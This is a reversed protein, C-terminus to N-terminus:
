PSATELPITQEVESSDSALNSQDDWEDSAAAEVEEVTLDRLQNLVHDRKAVFGPEDTTFFPRCAEIVRSIPEVMKYDVQLTAGTYRDSIKDLCADGLQRAISELRADTGSSDPLPLSGHQFLIRQLLAETDERVSPEWYLLLPPGWLHITHLVHSRVLTSGNELRRNRLESLADFFQLHERGGTNGITDVDRATSVIMDRINRPSRENECYAVAAQLFPAAVSAPDSEIGQRLTKALAHNTGFDYGARTLLGVIRNAATPNHNVDLMKWVFAVVSKSRATQRMWQEELHSLLVLDDNEVDVADDVRSGQHRGALETNSLLVQLLEIMQHYSIKTGRNIRRWLKDYEVRLITAYEMVLLHLCKEIFKAELVVHAEESGLSAIQVLLGFYEDWAKHNISVVDEWLRELANVITFLSGREEVSADQYPDIEPAYLSRGQVRLHQLATVIMRTFDVRIKASPNKLLLNKLADVHRAVWDISIKCCMECAGSVNLLTHMMNDFDPTDKTRSIVQEVHVLAVNIVAREMGHTKSCVGGNLKVLSDLLGRVFLSHYPDYLCYKRILFENDLAIHNGLDLSLPLRKPGEVIVSSQHNQATKLSSSRQYFLMYASYAKPVTIPQPHGNQTWTEIGGFCHNKLNNPDWSQVEADNFQVWGSQTLSTIPRERIFSYYHGSEATGSHILVGVLEFIDEPLPSQPDMLQDVQYPRMDIKQPFEFYDNIKSRTMTRLDFDFRKLHFILNNPIQKLCTRKVADVHRNCTTCSYKNDGEMFDGEVYARLSEELSSKGKIDCQIASFPEERESVHHCEKSKVQQVLQGGFFSRFKKKDDNSLIQAEWRDFLLNYFEDVDMQIQVDIQEDEYTRISGALERPEVASLWSNQMFAFLKQTESLLKQSGEADAVNADLMFGRFDVNMYLQTFLSNLYCTNSLNHLGVYGTPSRIWKTRQSLWSANYNYGAPFLYSLLALIRQYREPEQSLALVLQYLERRTPSHLIPVRETLVEAEISSSLDPFLFREFIEEGLTSLHISAKSSNSSQVCWHLLRTMGYVFHDTTDRGVMEEHKHELLLKGWDLIYSDYDLVTTAMDGVTRLVSLSAEFLEPSQPQKQRITTQPLISSLTRWFFFAFEDATVQTRKPIVKCFGSITGAIRKRLHSRLDDLVLQQILDGVQPKATFITWITANHLSAELICAFSNCALFIWEEVTWTQPSTVGHLFSVLCQVLGQEDPFYANSTSESVPEKLLRLLCDTLRNVVQVKLADNSVVDSTIPGTLAAIVAQVCRSIFAEDVTGKKLQEELCAHMTNVSYLIKYPEDAPFVVTTSLPSSSVLKRIREQPPFEILFEWIEKALKENLSLLAYLEDFHRLLEVEFARLGQLSSPKDSQTPQSIQQVIMSPHTALKQERLTQSPDQDFRLETGSWFARFYQFGTVESVRRKLDQLTELDGIEVSQTGLAQNEASFIQCRLNFREGENDMPVSPAQEPSSIIPPIPEPPYVLRLGHLSERLVLMSRCFRLEDAKIDDESPVIVMPEDEGSTFGESYSKINSAASTMQRVCRDLLAHHTAEAVPRPAREVISADLYMSVLLKVTSAGIAKSPATLIVHWLLEVGPVDMTAQAYDDLQISMRSEYRMAKDLFTALGPAYLNPHLAPLYCAICQDLFTNRERTATLLNSLMLWGNNREEPGRSDKGVLSDWLGEGLKSTISTSDHSIIYTLLDLRPSWILRDDGSANRKLIGQDVADVFEEIVLTTLKFDAILTDLDRSGDLTGSKQSALTNLVFISGSATPRKEAVDEICQQYIKQRTEADPGWRLLDHLGKVALHSILSVNEHTNAQREASQRILKICLDFPAVDLKPQSTTRFKEQVTNLVAEAYDLMVGDFAEIPLDYLKKCLYLLIEYNAVSFIGRIMTLIPAVARPDQSATVAQWIADTDHATYKKTVVLFGAVNSSREILQPHSDVGVLYEVIQEDVIFSALYDSIAQKVGQMTYLKYAEVLEHGMMDLAQIRLEMRGKIICKKLLSFKWAYTIVQALDETPVSSTDGGKDKFLAQACKLDAQSLDCVLSYFSYFVERLFDRPLPSQKAVVEHLQLDVIRCFKAANWPVEYWPDSEPLEGAFEGSIRDVAVSVISKVINVPKFIAKFLRHDKSIRETLLRAFVSLNEIGNMPGHAIVAAITGVMDDVDYNYFDRLMSFLPISNGESGVLIWYLPGQYRLSILEPEEDSNRLDTLTRIDRRVLELTLGAYQVFIDDLFRLEEVSEVLNLEDESPGGLPTSDHILKAVAAIAKLVLRRKVLGEMMTPIEEWFGQDDQFLVLWDFRNSTVERLCLKMWEAVATVVAAEFVESTQFGKGIKDVVFKMDEEETWWPFKELILQQPDQLGVNVVSPWNTSQEDQDMEDVEAIEIEPSQSASRSRSTADQLNSAALPKTPEKVDDQLNPEIDDIGDEKTPSCNVSESQQPRLNLTVKNPTSSVLSPDPSPKHEPSVPRCPESNELSEASRTNRGARSGPYTGGSPSTSSSASSGHQGPSPINSHAVAPDASMSRSAGAGNDLRQRKRTLSADADEISDRRPGCPESSAERARPPTLRPGDEPAANTCDM